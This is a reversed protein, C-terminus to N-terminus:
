LEKIILTYRKTSDPTLVKMPFFGEPILCPMKGRLISKDKLTNQNQRAFLNRNLIISTIPHNKILPNNLLGKLGITEQQIYPNRYVNKM